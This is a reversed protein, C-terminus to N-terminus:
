TKLNELEDRRIRFQEKDGNPMRLILDADIVWDKIIQSHKNYKKNAFHQATRIEVGSKWVAWTYYDNEKLWIGEESKDFDELTKVALDFGEKKNQKILSSALFGSLELRHYRKEVEPLSDFFSLIKKYFEESKSYQHKTDAYRGLFRFVRTGVILDVQEHHEKEYKEMQKASSEMLLIGKAARFPNAHLKKDREEMVMHQASLFKEQYLQVVMTHEGLKEAQKRIEDIKPILFESTGKKERENAVEELKQPLSEKTIIEIPKISEREM